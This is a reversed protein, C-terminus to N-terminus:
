CGNSLAMHLDVHCQRCLWIVELPKSYDPHHGEPVCVGKCFSCGNPRHLHGRATANMVCIQAHRRDPHESRWREVSKKFASTRRFRACRIRASIRGKETRQYKACARVHIEKYRETRRYATKCDKCHSVYHEPHDSRRAFETLPKEIKCKSCQKM